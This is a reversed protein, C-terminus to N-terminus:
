LLAHCLQKALLLQARASIRSFGRSGAGFRNVLEDYALGELRGRWLFDGSACQLQGVQLPSSLVLGQLFCFSGLGPGEPLSRAQRKHLM